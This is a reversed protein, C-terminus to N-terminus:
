LSFSLGFLIQKPTPYQGEDIGFNTSGGGGGTTSFGIVPDPGDYGTFTLLSNGQVFVRGSQLGARQLIAAPFTYGLQLSRLRLYSGDEVFYSNPVLGSSESSGAEQIALSANHNDPTWSDNVARNSKGGAFNGYFDTFWKVGNYIDNGQSGYWFLSM